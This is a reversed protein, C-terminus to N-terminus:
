NATSEHPTVHAISPEAWYCKIELKRFLDNMHWDPANNFPLYADYLKKACDQTLLYFHACRTGGHGKDSIANSKPYVYVNGGTPGEYYSKWSSDFIVDWGPYIENLQKIYTNVREDINESFHLSDEMIVGYEYGNEVIDKLCLYHKYTCSIVGPRMSFNGGGVFLGCSYSPEQNVIKKMLEDTLENKNPYTMWKVDKDGLGWKDFQEQMKPKRTADVGHILYYKVSM